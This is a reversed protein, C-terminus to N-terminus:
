FGGRLRKVWWLVTLWEGVLGGCLVLVGGMVAWCGVGIVGQSCWCGDRVGGGPGAPGPSFWVGVVPATGSQQTMASVGGGAVGGSGWM